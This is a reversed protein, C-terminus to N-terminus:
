ASRTTGLNQRSDHMCPAYLAVVDVAIILISWVPYSALFYMQGRSGEYEGRTVGGHRSTVTSTMIAEGILIRQEHVLLRRGPEPNPVM